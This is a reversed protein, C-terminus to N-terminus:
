LKWITNLKESNLNRRKLYNKLEDYGELAKFLKTEQLYEIIMKFYLPDVDLFISGESDLSLKSDWRGSFLIALHSDKFLCLTERKVCM